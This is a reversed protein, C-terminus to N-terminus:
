ATVAPEDADNVEAPWDLAARVDPERLEPFDTLIAEISVGAAYMGAVTAVPIRTGSLCPVGGMVRPDVSVRDLNLVGEPCRYEGSVAARFLAAALSGAHIGSGGGFGSTIRSLDALLHALGDAVYDPMTLLVRSVPRDTIDPGPAVIENTSVAMQDPLQWTRAPLELSDPSLSRAYTDTM